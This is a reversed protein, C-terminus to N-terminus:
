IKLTTLYVPLSNPSCSISSTTLCVSVNKMVATAIGKLDDPLMLLSPTSNSVTEPPQQNSGHRTLVNVGLDM